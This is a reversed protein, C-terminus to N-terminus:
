ISLNKSKLMERIKYLINDHSQIGMARISESLDLGDQRKIMNLIPHERFINSVAPITMAGPGAVQVDLIPM